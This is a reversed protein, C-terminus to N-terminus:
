TTSMKKYRLINVRLCSGNVNIVEELGERLRQLIIELHMAYNLLCWELIM